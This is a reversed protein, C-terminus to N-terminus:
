SQEGSYNEADLLTKPSQRFRKTPWRSDLSPLPWNLGAISRTRPHLQGICIQHFPKGQMARSDKLQSFFRWLTNAEHMESAELIRLLLLLKYCPDSFQYVAIVRITKESMERVNWSGAVSLFEMINSVPFRRESLTYEFLQGAEPWGVQYIMTPIHAVQLWIDRAAKSM